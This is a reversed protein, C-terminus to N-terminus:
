REALHGDVVTWGGTSFGTPQLVSYVAGARTSRTEVLRYGTPPAEPGFLRRGSGVTVPFVLLRFEDVLGAAHLTAVLQASGHVQLEGDGLSRKLGAVRAVVDGSIVTTDGWDPDTVATSVLYKPKGNLVAAAPNDADTVQTWFSRMREFTWRGLLVADCRTFWPGVIAGMDEDAYPVQWGGASFGGRTDEDPMGPSQIVGDLTLFQHVTLRM